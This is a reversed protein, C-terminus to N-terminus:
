VERGILEGFRRKWEAVIEPVKDPDYQEVPIYIDHYQGPPYEVRIDVCRYTGREPDFCVTEFIRVIRARPKEEKVEPKEEAM